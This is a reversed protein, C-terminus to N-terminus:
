WPDAIHGCPHTPQEQLSYTSSDDYNAKQRYDFPSATTWHPQFIGGSTSTQTTPEPYKNSICSHSKDPFAQSETLLNYVIDYDRTEHAASHLQSYPSHSFAGSPCNM